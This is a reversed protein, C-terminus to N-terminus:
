AQTVWQPILCSAPKLPNAPWPAMIISPSLLCRKASSPDVHSLEISLMSLFCYFLSGIFASSVRIAKATSNLTIGSLFLRPVQLHVICLLVYSLSSVMEPWPFLADRGAAGQSAVSSSDKNGLPVWMLRSARGLLQDTPWPLLTFQLFQHYFSDCAFDSKLQESNSACVQFFFIFYFSM